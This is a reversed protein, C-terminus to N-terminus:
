YHSILAKSDGVTIQLGGAVFTLCFEISSDEAM